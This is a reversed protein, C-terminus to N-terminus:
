TIEASLFMKSNKWEKRTGESPFSKSNVIEDMRRSEMVLRSELFWSIKAVNSSVYEVSILIKGSQLELYRKCKFKWRILYGIPHM